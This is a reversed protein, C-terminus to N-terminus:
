LRMDLRGDARIPGSAAISTSVPEGALAAAVAGSQLHKLMAANAAQQSSQQQHQFTMNQGDLGQRELAQVLESHMARLQRMAEPTESTITVHQLGQADFKFDISVRGLEPPDLQVVVRDTQGDSATRTVIDVVEAPSAVLVAHVPTMALPAPTLLPAPSPGPAAVAVTLPSTQTQVTATADPVASKDAVTSLTSFSREPIIEDPLPADPHPAAAQPQAGPKGISDTQVDVAAPADKAETKGLASSAPAMVAVAEVTADVQTQVQPASPTETRAPTQTQAAVPQAGAQPQTAEPLASAPTAAELPAPDTSSQIAASLRAAPAAAADAPRGLLLEAAREASLDRDLELEGPLEPTITGATLAPALADPAPAEGEPDALLAPALAPVAAIDPQPATLDDASEKGRTRKMVAAFDEGAEGRPEHCSPARAGTDPATSAAPSRFDLDFAIAM